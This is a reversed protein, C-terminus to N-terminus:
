FVSYSFSFGFFKFLLCLFASFFLYFVSSYYFVSFFSFGKFGILSSSIMGFSLFSAGFFGIISSICIVDYSREFFFGTIWSTDDVSTSSCDWDGITLSSFYSFIILSIGRSGVGSFFTFRIWSTSTVGTSFSYYSFSFVCSSSSSTGYVSM